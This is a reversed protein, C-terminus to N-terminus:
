EKSTSISADSLIRYSSNTGKLIVDCYKELCGEKYLVDDDALFGIDVNEELLLRISTNKTRAVGGNQSKKFINFNYKSLLNMHKEPVEGDVVIVVYTKVKTTKVVEQLSQLSREIIEYRKAETKEETYTSIAIGIKIENLEKTFSM